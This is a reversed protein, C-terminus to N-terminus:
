ENELYKKILYESNILDTFLYQGMIKFGYKKIYIGIIETKPKLSVFGDYGNNFALECAYAILCGAIYDYEKGKGKNSDSNELLQIHIRYEKSIDELSILGLIKDEELLKLKYVLYVKEKNWNFKFYGQNDIIEWDEENILEIVGNHYENSKTNLLKMDSIYSKFNINNIM